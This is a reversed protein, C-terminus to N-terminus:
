GACFSEFIIESQGDPEILECSVTQPSSFGYRMDKAINRAEEESGARIVLGDFEDYGVFATREVKWLAMM